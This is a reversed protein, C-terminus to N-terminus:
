IRRAARQASTAAPQRPVRRVPPRADVGAARLRRGHQAHGGAAGRRGRGVQRERQAAGELAARGARACGSAAIVVLRDVLSWALQKAPNDATPVDPDAAPRWRGRPRSPRQLDRGRRAAPRRRARPAGRPDGDLLRGVRAALGRGHVDRAAARRPSRGRRAARRDHHGRGPLPARARRHVRQDDGRDVGSYSSAIVLTERASGPRCTTAACSRWRSRSAIPGSAACSIAASRPAAWGSCRPAAAAAGLAARDVRSIRWGDEVQAPFGPWRTSCARVPRRARMAAPDDLITAQTAAASMATEDPGDAM